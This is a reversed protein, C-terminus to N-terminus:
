TNRNFHKSPHKQEPSDGFGVPLINAAQPKPNCVDFFNNESDLQLAGATHPFMRRSVLRCKPLAKSWLVPAKDNGTIGTISQPNRIINITYHMSGPFHTGTEYGGQLRFESAKSSSITGM